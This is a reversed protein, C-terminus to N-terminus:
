GAGPLRLLATMADANTPPRSAAEGGATCRRDLSGSWSCRAGSGPATLVSIPSSTPPRRVSPRRAAARVAAAAGRDAPGPIHGAGAPHGLGQLVGSVRRQGARGPGPGQGQARDQEEGRADGGDQADPEQDAAPASREASAVPRGWRGVLRYRM